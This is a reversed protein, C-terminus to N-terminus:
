IGDDENEGHDVNAAQLLVSALCAIAKDLETTTLVALPAQFPITLQRSEARRQLRNRLTPQRRLM